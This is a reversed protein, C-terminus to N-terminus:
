NQAIYEKLCNLHECYKAAKLTQNDTQFLLGTNYHGLLYVSFYIESPTRRLLPKPSIVRQDGTNTASSTIKLVENEDEYVITKLFSPKKNKKRAVLHLREFIVASQLKTRTAGLYENQECLLSVTLLAWRGSPRTKSPM